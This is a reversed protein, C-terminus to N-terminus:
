KMKHFNCALGSSSSSRAHAIESTAPLKMPVIRKTAFYTHVNVCSLRQPLGLSSMRIKWSMLPSDGPGMQWMKDRGEERHVDMRLSTTRTRRDKGDPLIYTSAALREALALQLLPAVRASYM